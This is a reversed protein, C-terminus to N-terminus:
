RISIDHPTVGTVDALAAAAWCLHQTLITTTIMQWSTGTHFAYLPTTM